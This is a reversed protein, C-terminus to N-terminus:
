FLLNRDNMVLLYLIRLRPIARVTNTTNKVMHTLRPAAALIQIKSLHSGSETLAAPGTRQLGFTSPPTLRSSKRFEQSRSPKSVRCPPKVSRINHNVRKFSHADRVSAPFVMRKCLNWFKFLPFIGKPTATHIGEVR